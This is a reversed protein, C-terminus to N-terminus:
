VTLTKVGDEAGVLVIDVMQEFIGHEVVGVMNNLTAALEQPNEIRSLHLDIIHHGGDTVLKDVGNMRFRPNWGFSEFRHYLNQSGFPIVEIPLPFKGLKDVMKSEDVVWIIKRAYNAVIKEFLLAAGGGKIGDFEASIEDAGDIVVDIGDVEDLKKLPINLSEAQLQTQTSTTVATIQLGEEKIRRAVEDVMHKATSGTGLGVVMGDEIYKVSEIGVRKKLEEQSM